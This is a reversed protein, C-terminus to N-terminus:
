LIPLRALGIRGDGGTGTSYNTHAPRCTLQSTGGDGKVKVRALSPWRLLSQKKLARAILAAEAFENVDNIRKNKSQRTLTM